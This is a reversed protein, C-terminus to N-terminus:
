RRIQVLSRAVAVAQVASEGYGDAGIERAYKETVPAGGVMVRFRDRLGRSKLLEIVKKQNLMTTTLLASLAILDANEEVAAEVFKDIKVDAGLDIVEFSAARLMSAVLNKGIDHIDGEVTGIVVRGASQLTQGTAKLAAQLIAMAAKMAEAGAILEPLFYEGAEWLRGVEEIAPLCAKEIIELPPRGSALAKEALPGSEDVRGQIIAQTLLQLQESTEQKM